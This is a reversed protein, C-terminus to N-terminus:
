FVFFRLGYCYGVPEQAVKSLCIQIVFLGFTYDFLIHM